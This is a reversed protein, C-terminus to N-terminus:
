KKFEMIQNIENALVNIQFESLDLGSMDSIAHITEHLLTLNKIESKMTSEIVIIAQKSDCRGMMNDVRSHPTNELVDFEIGCITIKNKM